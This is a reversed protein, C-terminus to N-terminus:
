SWAEATVDGEIQELCFRHIWGTNIKSFFILFINSFMYFQQIFLYEGIYQSWFKNLECMEMVAVLPGAAISIALPGLFTRPVM